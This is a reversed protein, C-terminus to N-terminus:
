RRSTASGSLVGHTYALLGQGLMWGEINLVEVPLSPDSDRDAQMFDIMALLGVTADFPDEDDARVGFGAAIQQRLEPRLKIRHWVAWQLINPSQERRYDPNRKSRGPGTPPLGLVAYGDAPYTECVVITRSRLLESLPGDFPWLAFRNGFERMAPILLEQWGAIAARGVQKAGLTWFLTSAASRTSTARECRRHLQDMNQLGLAELLHIQKRGGPRYPYFPRRLSIERREQAVRCFDVWSGTALWRKKPEKGWDAHAILAPREKM